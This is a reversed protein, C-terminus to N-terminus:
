LTFTSIASTFLDVGSGLVTDTRHITSAGGVVESTSYYIFANYRTVFPEHETVIPLEAVTSVVTRIKTWEGNLNRYISQQNARLSNDITTEAVIFILENNFEPAKFMYADGVKDRPEFTLLPYSPYSLFIDLTQPFSKTLTDNTEQGIVQLPSHPQWIKMALGSFLKSQTKV